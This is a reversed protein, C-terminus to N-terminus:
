RWMREDAQKSGCVDCQYTHPKGSWGTKETWVVDGKEISKGCTLCTLMSLRRGTILRSLTHQNMRYRGFRSRIMECVHWCEQYRHCSPRKGSWYPKCKTALVINLQGTVSRNINYLDCAGLWPFAPQDIEDFHEPQDTQHFHQCDGCFM